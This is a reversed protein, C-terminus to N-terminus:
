VELEKCQLLLLAHYDVFSRIFFLYFLRIFKGNIGRGKGVLVKLPELREWDGSFVILDADNINMWFYKYKHCM